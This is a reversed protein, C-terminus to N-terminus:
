ALRPVQQREGPEPSVPPQRLRNPFEPTQPGGGAPPQTVRQASSTHTVSVVSRGPSWSVLDAAAAAAAATGSSRTDGLVRLWVTSDSAPQRAPRCPSQWSPAGARLHPRVAGPVPCRAGPM